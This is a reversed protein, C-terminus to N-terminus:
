GDWKVKWTIINTGTISRREDFKEFYKTGYGNLYFLKTFTSAGLPAYALMIRNEDVLIVDLLGNEEQNIVEFSDNNALILNNVSIQDNAVLVEKKKMDVVLGNQCTVTDNTRTCGWFYRGEVPVYGPYPAFWQNILNARKINEVESRFDIEKLEDVYQKIVDLDEDLEESIQEPTKDKYNNHVYKKTFDWSGWHAWVGTKSVMDESTIVFNEPPNDCYLRDMVQSIEEDTFQYHKYNKLIEIKEEKSKGLTSYILHNVKIGNTNDNSTKLLYDFATNGGCQLMRLIDVTAKEDNELFLKGVWHSQPTTQSAGDFTAGREAVSVFFHGFDWWSTIIADPQSNDKIKQMAGYWADDFNPLTGNATAEARSAIPSFLALFLLLILVYGLLNNNKNQVLNWKHILDNILKAIYFLGLSFAISFAPALLLIFRIGNLSMFITGAMWIGLIIVLFIKQGSQGNYLSYLLSLLIPLFLMVIFIYQQNVAVSILANHISSMFGGQGGKNFSFIFLSFWIIGFGVLYLKAYKIKEKVEKFDLSLLLVGLLAILFILEGGVSSVINSFSAPNLEAVSSLVNPWIDESSISAIETGLGSMANIIIQFVNQKLIILGAVYSTLAFTVLVIANSIMAKTLTKKDRVKRFGKSIYEFGIYGIIGIVIFLLNFWGHGWAWIFVAQSLGALVGFIIKNITKESMMAMLILALILTPFFVNYADTDVFGAMTRSLFTSVFSLTLSGFFAFLSNSYKRIIFFLPIISLISFLVPIFYVARTKEGFTSEPTIGYFKFMQAELWVHFGPKESAFSGTPALRRTIIPREVGEKDVKLTDGQHGNFYYNQSLTFWYYPDIALFYTQGNEAQLQNKFQASLQAKQTEIENKNAEYFEAYQKNVERDVQDQPLTPFQARLQQSMQSKLNNQITDQAWGDTMPLSYSTMRVQASYVIPIILLLLMIVINFIKQNNKYFEITRKYTNTVKEKISSDKNNHENQHKSHIKAKHSM